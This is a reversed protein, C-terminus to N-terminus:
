IYKNFCYSKQTLTENFSKYDAHEGSVALHEQIAQLTEKTHTKITNIKDHVNMFSTKFRLCALLNQYIQFVYLGATLSLYIKKDITVSNFNIILNGISNKQAVIKLFSLYESFTLKGRNM